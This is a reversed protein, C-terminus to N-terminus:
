AALSRADSKIATLTIGLERRTMTPSKASPPLTLGKRATVPLREFASRACSDWPALALHKVLKIAKSREARGAASYAKCWVRNRDYKRAGGGKIKTAM